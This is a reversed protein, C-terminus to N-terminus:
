VGFPYTEPVRRPTIPKESVLPTIAETEDFWIYEDFQNPLVASFYHSALETDPRYVVGIARELRPSMLAERFESEPRLPLTLQPTRTDHFLQEYSRARSPRISMIELEGGWDHAAAVTGAHTGFGILYAESGYSQRCLQGVNHEGRAAMETASADGLHSNHAWVVARSAPGRFRLLTQLTEFMHTDRLNWSETSGYYMIRYYREADVVLRANQVADLFRDGDNLSYRLRRALLEDLMQVVHEECARYAGTIAARGYVAPDHQYPSLCGYRERAISAVEPDVEDLYALVEGISTHLSYLDLGYFGTRNELPRALNHERMWALLEIVERNRWMWRPFRSFPQWDIPPRELDRVHADLAAADPWDAEVAIINFGAREVLARTIATRMRYFESTGHTAEGLLVVRADGIRELMGDVFRSDLDDIDDFPIAAEAIQSPLESTPRVRRPHRESWGEAGVLPVFRVYGLDETRFKGDPERTIRVLSQLQQDGIPIVMRGGEALQDRLSPPVEPGGAAVVIADFPAEDALGLTGDGCVVEVNGYGAEELRRRASDALDEYREITFVKEAIEALVAAAYGSGTGIELVRDGPRLQLAETMLAVIFPQSITQGSEIPLPSDGYAFERLRHAVFQERPVTRMAALVQPDHVGRGQIQREVM